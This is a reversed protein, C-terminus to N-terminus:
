YLLNIGVNKLLGHAHYCMKFHGRHASLDKKQGSIFEGLAKGKKKNGTSRLCIFGFIKDCGILM